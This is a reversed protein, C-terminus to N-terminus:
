PDRSLREIQRSTGILWSCNGENYAHVDDRVALLASTSQCQYDVDYFRLSAGNETVIVTASLRFTRRGHQDEGQVKDLDRYPVPGLPILRDEQVTEYAYCVRAEEEFIQQAPVRDLGARCAADIRERVTALRAESSRACASLAVAVCAAASAVIKSPSPM